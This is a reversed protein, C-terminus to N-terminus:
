THVHSEEVIPARDASGTSEAIKTKSRSVAPHLISCFFSVIIEPSYCHKTIAGCVTYYLAAVSRFPMHQHLEDAPFRLALTGHRASGPLAENSFARIGIDLSPDVM